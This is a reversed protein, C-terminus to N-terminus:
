AWHTMDPRTLMTCGIRVEDVTENSQRNGDSKWRCYGSTIEIMKRELERYCDCDGVLHERRPIKKFDIHSITTLHFM